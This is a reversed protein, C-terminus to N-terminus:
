KMAPTGPAYTRHYRGNYRAKLYIKLAQM